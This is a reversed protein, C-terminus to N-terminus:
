RGAGWRPVPRGDTLAGLDPASGNVGGAINPLLVGASRAVSSTKLLPVFERDYRMLHDTGLGDDQTFPAPELLLDGDHRRRSDFLGSTVPLGARAADLGAFAGGSKSWWVAGDPFWGNNTFDIPDNSESEIALLQRNGGKYILLNNRFAWGKLAGNNFQVWGWHNTGANRIITNNYILFGSNTNNLKFPGRFTNIAINRFCYLPGGWLPDLSLLTASNTIHNDYFGINRTAYDAEFADDGTMEVRNRYIYVGASHAGDNVAFADGFGNLTNEFVAIGEGPLRIGDDNWTLNTHLFEATWLNNGRLKNHYALVSRVASYAIIGKDVGEIDLDRFVINEQPPSDFFGIAVSTAQIGSDKGTGRLTLNELVLNSTRQLQLVTDAGSLVVGQRTRGRIVIPASPTGSVNVYLRAVVYNGDALELVDGPRLRNFAAQLDDGPRVTATPLGSPPPISRTTATARLVQDAQGPEQVKVEVEYPTASTLDFISGALSDVPAAPAGPATWAPRIRLLPHADLWAVQGQVRYRLLARTGEAWTRGPLVVLGIQEPTAVEFRITADSAASAPPPVPSPAAPSPEPSPTPATTAPPAVATPAASGGGGCGLLAALLWGFCLRIGRSPRAPPAFALCGRSLM